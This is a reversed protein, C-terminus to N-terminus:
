QDRWNNQMCDNLMRRSRNLLVYCNNSKIDLRRCIEDTEYGLHILNLVRAYRPYVAILKRLCDLLKQKLAPNSDAVYYNLQGINDVNSIRNHRVNSKKLYNGICNRLIMYAWSEFKEPRDSTKLKRLVIMCAEQAIDEAYDHGIRKRALLVFRVYLYQFLREEASKDGKKARVVLQNM